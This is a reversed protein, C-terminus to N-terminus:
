SVVSKLFKATEASRPFKQALSLAAQPEAGRDVLLRSVELRNFIAALKLATMGDEDAANLNAKADLLDRVEDAKGEKSAWLLATLGGRDTAEIDARQELLFQLVERRGNLAALTLVSRGAADRATLDSPSASLLTRCTTLDGDWAAKALPVMGPPEVTEPMKLGLGSDQAKTTVYAKKKLFAQFKPSNVSYITMTVQTPGLGAYKRGDQHAQELLCGDPNGQPEGRGANAM